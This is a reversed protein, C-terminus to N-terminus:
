PLAGKALALPAATTLSWEFLVEPPDPLHVHPNAFHAAQTLSIGHILELQERYWSDFPQTSTLMLSLAAGVDHAELTSVTVAGLPTELLTLQERTIGLRRRSAEYQPLRAGALAQCFRRWSEVHSAALPLTLVIGPM